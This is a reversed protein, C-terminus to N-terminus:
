LFKRYIRIEPFKKNDAGSFLIDYNEIILVATALVGTLAYWYM